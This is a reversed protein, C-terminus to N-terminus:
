WLGSGDYILPVPDKITEDVGWKNLLDKRLGRLAEASPMERTFGGEQVKGSTALTLLLGAMCLDVAREDGAAYIADGDLKANILATIVRATPLPFNVMSTLAEKISVSEM